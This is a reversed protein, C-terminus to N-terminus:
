HIALLLDVKSHVRYKLEISWNLSQSSILDAYDADIKRLQWLTKLGASSNFFSLSQLMLKMEDVTFYSYYSTIGVFGDLFPRGKLMFQWLKRISSDIAEIKLIFDVFKYTSYSNLWSSDGYWIKRILIATVASTTVSWLNEIANWNVSQDDPKIEQLQPQWNLTGDFIISHLFQEFLILQENKVEKDAWRLIDFEVVALSDFYIIEDGSGIASYFDELKIDYKWLSVSM